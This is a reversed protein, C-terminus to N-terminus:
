DKGSEIKRAIYFIRDSRRTPKKFKYAQYVDVIEFGASILMDNLEDLSHGRQIHVEKFQKKNGNEIVEFTMNVRCIRTSPDYKSNWVYKLNHDESLDAQDFFNHALAYITNVDFIFIGGDKLQDAVREIGIALDKSNTIYNLSDFLSIAMDFKENIQLDCVNQVFYRVNSGKSKAVDIMDSAIDIGVVDYNMKALIESVNGTGCAVDLISNPHYNLKELIQMLYDVWLKYPVGAMLEDYYSAILHFQSDM